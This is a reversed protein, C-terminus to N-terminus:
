DSVILASAILISYLATGFKKRDVILVNKDTKKKFIIKKNNNIFRKFNVSM